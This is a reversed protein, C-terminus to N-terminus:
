GSPASFGQVGRNKLKGKESAVIRRRVAQRLFKLAKERDKARVTTELEAKEVASLAVAYAEELKGRNDSAAFIGRGSPLRELIKQRVFRLAETGDADIDIMEIQLRDQLSFAVAFKDRM